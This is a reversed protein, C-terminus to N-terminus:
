FRIAHIQAKEEDSLRVVQRKQPEYLVVDSPAPGCVAINIAHGGGSDQVYWLEGIALATAPPRNPTLYHLIQGFAAALRAFDDCDNAEESWNLLDFFKQLSWLAASFAGALFDRTPMAYRRDVVSFKNVDMPAYGAVACTLELEAATLIKM